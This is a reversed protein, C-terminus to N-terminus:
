SPDNFGIVPQAMWGPRRVTSVHRDQTGPFRALDDYVRNIGVSPMYPFDKDAGTRGPEVSIMQVPDGPSRITRLNAEVASHRLECEM